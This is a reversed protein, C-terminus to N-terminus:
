NQVHEVLPYLRCHIKSKEISYYKCKDLTVIFIISKLPIANQM